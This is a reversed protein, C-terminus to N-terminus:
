VLKISKVLRVEGVPLDGLEFEGFSIRKLGIVEHGLALCLRRIERNKGELLVIRLRSEKASKKLIEADKAVLREGEDVVGRKMAEVVAEDFEGRVQVVYTRPIQSEPATLFSSLKTDNTLLLLGSTHMDLRGVPHFSKLESPLFDYITKKGEPDRKTTVVGKPKHFIFLMTEARTIKARDVEIHATDPNVMREPGKEVVGHVKVRGSEILLRAEKRSSFGLKSLARDLTVRGKKQNQSRKKM